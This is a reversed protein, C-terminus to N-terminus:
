MPLHQTGTLRGSTRGDTRWVSINLWFHYHCSQLRNGGDRLRPVRYLSALKWEVPEAPVAPVGQSPKLHSQHTFVGIFRLNEVLLITIDHFRYLILM